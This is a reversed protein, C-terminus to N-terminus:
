KNSSGRQGGFIVLSGQYTNCTHGYRQLITKKDDKTVSWIQESDKDDLYWVNKTIAHNVGGILYSGGQCNSLTASQCYVPHWINKYMIKQTAARHEYQDEIWFENRTKFLLSQQLFKYKKKIKKYNKQSPSVSIVYSKRLVIKATKKKEEIKGTLLEQLALGGQHYENPNNVKFIKKM